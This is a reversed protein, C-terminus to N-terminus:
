SIKSSRIASWARAARIRKLNFRRALERRAEYLAKALGRGRYEPDVMVEAGYLTKGKRPNHNHFFGAMTFDTWNDYPSYDDWSIILSFALGVLKGSKKKSSWM